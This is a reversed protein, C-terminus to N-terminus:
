GEYYGWFHIGLDEPNVGFLGALEAAINNLSTIGGAKYEIGVIVSNDWKFIRYLDDDDFSQNLGHSRLQGMDNYYFIDLNSHGTVFELIRDKMSIFEEKELYDGVVLFSSSSSNSVFGARIKM